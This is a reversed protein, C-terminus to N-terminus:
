EKTDRLAQEAAQRVVADLWDHMSINQKERARLALAKTEATVGELQGFYRTTHTGGRPGPIPFNLNAPPTGEEVSFDILYFTGGIIWQLNVNRAQIPLHELPLPAAFQPNTFTLIKAFETERLWPPMSEDGVVVRGGPRTVRAVEQFFRPIDAFEGVGGFQFVADFVNDAFPLYSANAVSFEVKAPSGSLRERCRALMASSIDQCFLQGDPIRGAIQISDRGTGCGVELVCADPKLRLRDIMNRRVAEEDEGFTHFTLPLYRDYDAVRGDYFARAKRDASHLTPPYTFDPVGDAIVYSTGASSLLHGSVVEQGDCRSQQLGFPKGSEPCRYYQVASERMRCYGEETPLSFTAGRHAEWLPSPRPSNSEFGGCTMPSAPVSWIVTGAGKVRHAAARRDSRVRDPIVLIM